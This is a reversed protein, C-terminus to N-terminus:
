KIFNQKLCNFHSKLLSLKIMITLKNLINETKAEDFFSQNEQIM